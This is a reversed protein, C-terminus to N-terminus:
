PLQCLRALAIREANDAPQKQGSLITPLKSDLEAFRECDRVWQASPYTWRPNQSGFEHGRRLYILAEAFHGKQNLAHGLNIHPEVYDKKLRIAERYEVIAEDLRGKDKLAM